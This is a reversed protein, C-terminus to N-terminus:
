ESPGARAGDLASVLEITAAGSLERNLWAQAAKWDRESTARSIGLTEAVEAHSLGAFFLLEVVKAARPDLQEFRGLAGHLDLIEDSVEPALSIGLEEELAVHASKGGRKAAQQAESYNVLIQRVAKSLLAFFHERSKPAPTSRAFLKIFVENALVRTELTWNGSWKSRQAAAIKLVEEHVRLWAQDRAGEDGEAAQRLLQLTRDAGPGDM